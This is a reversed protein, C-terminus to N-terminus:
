EYVASLARERVEIENVCVVSIVTDAGREGGWCDKVGGSRERKCPAEWATMTSRRSCTRNFFTWGRVFILLKSTNKRQTYIHYLNVNM